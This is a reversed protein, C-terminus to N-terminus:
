LRRDSSGLERLRKSGEVQSDKVGSEGIRRSGALQLEIRQYSPFCDQVILICQM